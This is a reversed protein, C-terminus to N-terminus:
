NIEGLIKINNDKMWTNIKEYLFDVEKFDGSDFLVIKKNNKNLAIYKYLHQEGYKTYFMDDEYYLSKINVFLLKKNNFVPIPRSKVFINKKTIIIKKVNILLAFGLYIFSVSISLPFFLYALALDLPNNNVVVLLYIMIFLIISPVLIFILGLKKDGHYSISLKDPHAKINFFSSKNEDQM